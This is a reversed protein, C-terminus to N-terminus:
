NRTIHGCTLKSANDFQSSFCINLSYTLTSINSSYSRIPQSFFNGNKGLHKVYAAQIEPEHLIVVRSCKWWFLLLSGGKPYLKSQIALKSLFKGNIDKNIKWINHNLHKDGLFSPFPSFFPKFVKTVSRVTNLSSSCRRYTSMLTSRTQIYKCYKANEYGHFNDQTNM